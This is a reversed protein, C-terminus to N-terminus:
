SPCQWYDTWFTSHSLCCLRSMATVNTQLWRAGRAKLRLTITKINGEIMGSGIARGERLRAAYNLRKAHKAFYRSLGDIRKEPIKSNLASELEAQECDEEDGGSQAAGKPGSAPNGKPSTPKPVPAGVEADVETPAEAPVTPMTMACSMLLTVMMTTASLEDASANRAAHLLQREEDEFLRIGADGQALLLSQAREYRSTAMETDEDYQRRTYKSIADLAHFVDLTQRPEEFLEESARWIWSAGDGLCNAPESSGWPWEQPVSPEQGVIPKPKTDTSIDTSIDTSTDTSAPSLSASAAAAAAAIAFRDIQKDVLPIFADISAIASVLFQATPRPLQRTKWEAPSASAALPRRALSAVKLDRWGTTTNVKGADTQFELEGPAEAFVEAVVEQTDLWVGMAKAEKECHRRLTEDSVALGCYELLHRSSIAFSSGSASLCALRRVGASLSNDVGLYDDALYGSWGCACRDHRRRLSVKGCVTV